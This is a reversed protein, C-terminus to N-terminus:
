REAARAARRGEEVKVRLLLAGGILFFSGIALVGTRSSGTFRLAAAFVLPGLIAGFREFVAFVGFFEGSKQKPILSAFLSRTLAQTGGQVVGVLAALALFHSATTMFYGLLSIGLYAVLGLLIAGRTGFVAAAGGFLFSCPVGVFQVVVIAAIQIDQPIGIETGYVTALRIITSIGDGYILAALLLLVANPFARLERFLALVRRFADAVGPRGAAAVEPAAAAPPEPVVLFLPVAFVLWWAATALFATRVPLTRAAGVAADGEPLGVLGPKLIIALAAALLVGGGIYGLAYGATSVRDVEDDSALHPLLSDYFVFAGNLGINALVFLVLARAWMGEGITAMLATTSVGLALFLALFRKKWPVVDAITGLVPSLVAVIALGLSTALSFRYSAEAKPLGAAAVSAFYIPFVATVVVTMFGSNAWDYLAWARLERRHLGLRELLTM